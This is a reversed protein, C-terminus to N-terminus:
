DGIKSGRETRGANYRYGRVLINEKVKLELQDKIYLMDATLNSFNRTYRYSLSSAKPIKQNTRGSTM